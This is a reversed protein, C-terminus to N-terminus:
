VSCPVMNLAIFIRSKMKATHVRERFLKVTLFSETAKKERHTFLESKYFIAKDKAFPDMNTLFNIAGEGKESEREGESSSRM